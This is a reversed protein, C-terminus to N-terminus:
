VSKEESLILTKVEINRMQWIIRNLCQKAGPNLKM